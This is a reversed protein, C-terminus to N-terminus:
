RTSSAAEGKQYSYGDSKHLHTCYRHSIGQMTDKRTAINFSGSSRVAVRGIYVGIKKGQTVVAKVIDGTQFGQQTRKQKPKTRPFGYKDVRCMLRSQHGNAKITLPVYDPAIYVQEGSEGVCAADIWHAKPYGQTCRNFKTRGGTGTEVPLLGNNLGNYIAWRTANVAAADKLPHKAKRQIDPYGFEQATQNGKERNCSPCALTLNSVRDSGGRSRPTIHEVELPVDKAGCYACKRGWKELLYERVEYGQLEGQQYAVGSIEPTQMKHTDFRVVEVSISNYPTWRYLRNAWTFINDVRSQLSPPLWGRPRRRNDFRAPRYRTKRGRRGRRLQRRSLLRDKIVQGRHHLDAAWVVKKGRKCDAVLAIGTTKSGPDIKLQAPQTEGGARDKLIITFPYRRLVAARGRKLLERARSSHCPM